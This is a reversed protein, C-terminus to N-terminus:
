PQEKEEPGMLRPSGFRAQLDARQRILVARREPHAALCSACFCLMGRLYGAMQASMRHTTRRRPGPAGRTAFNVPVPNM